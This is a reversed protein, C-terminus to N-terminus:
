QSGRRVRQTESVENPRTNGRQAAMRSPGDPNGLGTKPNPQAVDQNHCFRLSRSAQRLGGLRLRLLGKLDGWATSIIAVSSNPDDAWRVPVERIRYHNKEAIILMESDFFWIDDRVLGLVSRMTQLNLAKFGCQLDLLKTRFMARALLNYARSIIERTPSRGVVHAGQALRSGIAIDYGEHAVAQILQPLADLGTSLDVDMYVVVTANSETWAKKLARGRGQEELHIFDVRQYDQSLKRCISRTGDTSGNDAIVIRWDYEQLNDALFNLTTEVALALDHEENLVPLVIDLSSDITM